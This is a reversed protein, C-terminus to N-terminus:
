LIHSTEKTVKNHRRGKSRSGAGTLPELYLDAGGVVSTSGASPDRSRSSTGGGWLPSGGVSRAFDVSSGWGSDSAVSGSKPILDYRQSHFFVVIINLCERM